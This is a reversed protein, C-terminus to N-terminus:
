RGRQDAFSHGASNRLIMADHYQRDNYGITPLMYESSIGGYHKGDPDRLRLIVYTPVFDPNQADTKGKLLRVFGEHTIGFDLVYTGSQVPTIDFGRADFAQYLAKYFTRNQASNSYADAIALTEPMRDGTFTVLKTVIDEATKNWIELQAANKDKNYSYGIDRADGGAPSHSDKKHYSYGSPISNYYAKVPECASLMFSFSFACSLAILSSRKM